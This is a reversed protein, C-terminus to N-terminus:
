FDSSVIVLRYRFGLVDKSNPTRLVISFDFLIHRFQLYICNKKKLGKSNPDRKGVLTGQFIKFGFLYKSM